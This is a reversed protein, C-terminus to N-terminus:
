NEKKLKRIYLLLGIVVALLAAIGALYWNSYDRASEIEVAEENLVEDEERITFEEQWEWADEGDTATMELRYTGEQLPRNNWDIIFDMTSNPAMRIDTQEIERVPETEGQEFVKAQITVGNMLVPQDNQVQAVVATRHNVLQPNVSLLNLKSAVDEDKESLQLGIVYAYRNQISVGEQTEEEDPVKEFHFGGLKIGDFPEEPIELNATVTESEDAPITWEGDELTVLETVPNQLSPDLEEQEEYVILGNSNTSADYVDGRITIEENGHNYITIHLDQEQGPEVRLDFYSVSDDRQNEPLQAQVSYGVTGEAQVLSASVAFIFLFVLSFFTVMRKM